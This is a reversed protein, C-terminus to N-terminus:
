GNQLSSRSSASRRGTQSSSSLSADRYASCRKGKKKEDKWPIGGNKGLDRERSIAGAIAGCSVGFMEALESQKLHMNARLLQIREPTWDMMARVRPLGMQRRWQGRLQLLSVYQKGWEIAIAMLTETTVAQAVRLKQEESYWHSPRRPKKPKCQGAARMEAYRVRVTPEALGVAQALEVWSMSDMNAVIFADQAARAAKRKEQLQRHLVNTAVSEVATPTRGLKRSLWDYGEAYNEILFDYEDQSWSEGAMPYPNRM